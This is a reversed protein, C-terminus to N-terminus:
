RPMGGRSITSVKETLTPEIATVDASVQEVFMAYSRNTNILGDDHHVKNIVIIWQNGGMDIRFSTEHMNYVIGLLIGKEKVERNLEGFCRQDTAIRESFVAILSKFPM